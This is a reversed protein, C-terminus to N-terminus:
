RGLRSLTGRAYRLGGRVRRGLRLPTRRAALAARRAEIEPTRLSRRHEVEDRLEGLTRECAHGDIPGLHEEVVQRALEDETASRRRGRIREVTDALQEHATLNEVIGTWEPFPILAEHVALADESWGTYAAPRGAAVAEILATTQFGVVVDAGTILPRIDAGPDVLEVRDRLDGAAAALRRREADFPQQPHPKIQVRWGRRALEWLGLETERHLREWAPEGENPHYADVLYSLFLVTPDAGGAGAPPQAYFDFRPQGTVVVREPPAGTRLWFERHRESCVTMRDALTPAYRSVRVLFDEFTAPSITTEKQAVFYAAGLDHVIAPADRVYFFIDSPLVLADFPFRTFEDELLGRLRRQWVAHRSGGVEAAYTELDASIERGFVRWAETLFLAYSVVRLETAEGAASRLADIDQEFHHDLVLLRV